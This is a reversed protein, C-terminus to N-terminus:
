QSFSITCREIGRVVAEVVKTIFEMLARRTSVVM